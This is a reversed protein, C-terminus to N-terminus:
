MVEGCQECKLPDVEYVKRILKAWNASSKKPQFESTEEATFIADDDVEVEFEFGEPSSVKDPNFEQNAFQTVRSRYQSNPALVGHYHHRHRRPPLILQALKDLLETATLNLPPQTQQSNKNVDYLLRVADANEVLRSVATLKEGSFAPRACYRLLREAGKRDDSDICVDANVSFGGNGKWNKISEVDEETLLGKRKYLSLVRKRVRTQVADADEVGLDEVESFQLVGQADEYFIGNMVVCHYHLHLNLSSGFRQIFSIAGLKANIINKPSLTKLQKRIEDIFIRLVQSALSPDRALYYRIWKPLSLVWQRLPLKPLVEEVIHMATAIMNKTNCSPCVGRRKCSFVIIFDTGCLCRARAFGFCLIGCKFYDRFENEVFGPLAENNKLFYNALWDEFYNQVIQYLTTSQPYRRQYIKPVCLSM